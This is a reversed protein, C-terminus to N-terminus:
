KKLLMEGIEKWSNVRIINLKKLESDAINRNHFATFMIKMKTQGRMNEHRDDIQIDAKLINKASTFIFKNPDLFPFNKVLFDFKQKFFVGSDKEIGRWVCSSCIYVDYVENLKKLVSVANPFIRAHNYLNKDKMQNYFEKKKEESGIVYDMYFETFDNIKYKTGLFENIEDIFNNECICDDVDILIKKKM